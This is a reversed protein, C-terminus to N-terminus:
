GKPENDDLEMDIPLILEGTEHDVVDYHAMLQVAERAADKRSVGAAVASDVLRKKMADYSIRQGEM